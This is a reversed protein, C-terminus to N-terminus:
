DEEALTVEARRRVLPAPEDRRAQYANDAAQLTTPLGFTSRDVERYREAVNSAGLKQKERAAAREELRQTPLDARERAPREPLPLRGLDVVPGGSHRLVEGDVGVARAPGTGGPLQEGELLGHSGYLRATHPPELPGVRLETRRAPEESGAVSGVKALSAALLDLSNSM